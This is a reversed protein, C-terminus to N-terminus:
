APPSPTTFIPTTTAGTHKAAISAVMHADINVYEGGLVKEADKLAKAYDKTQLAAFMEEQAGSVDKAHKREPSDVYSMRLRSYDIQTNGGKLEALLTGYESGKGQEATVACVLAAALVAGLRKAFM